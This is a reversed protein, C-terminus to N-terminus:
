FSNHSTPLPESTWRRIQYPFRNREFSLSTSTFPFAMRQRPTSRGVAVWRGRAQLGLERLSKSPVGAAHPAGRAAELRPHGQAEQLQLSSPILTSTVGSVHTM